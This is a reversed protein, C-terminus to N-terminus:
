QKPRTARDCAGGSVAGVLLGADPASIRQVAAIELKVSLLHKLRLAQLPEPVTITSTM